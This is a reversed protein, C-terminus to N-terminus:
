RMYRDARHKPAYSAEGASPVATLGSGSLFAGLIALYDSPVLGDDVLPTAVLVVAALGGALARVYPNKLM